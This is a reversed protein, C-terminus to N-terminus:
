FTEKPIRRLKQSTDIILLAEAPSTETTLKTVHSSGLRAVMFVIRFSGHHCSIGFESDESQETAKLANLYLSKGVLWILKTWPSQDCVQEM